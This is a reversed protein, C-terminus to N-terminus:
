EGRLAAHLPELADGYRAAIGISASHIPARVQAASATHVPRQTSFFELCKPDFDLGCIELLRRTESEQDTVLAEYSIDHVFGPLVEHWHAILHQYQRHYHGIEALDYAYNLQGSAFYNRFISASTDAADRVCHIIRANPLALRIMGILLFNGPMKDTIFRAESSYLRLRTVYDTGLKTLGANGLKSLLTAYGMATDGGTAASVLDRLLPLEGAGFVQPHSALIQEVLTTGSRPMGLVFIPTPDPNGAGAHTAFTEATFSQRIEAFAQESQLPSYDVAARRLKNAELLYPMARQYDGDEEYARGLDFALHMRASSGPEAMRFSAIREEIGTAPDGILGLMRRWEARDPDIRLADRYAELAADRRGYAMLTSGLDAYYQPNRPNIAIAQRHAVIADEIDGVADLARGLVQFADASSPRQAIAKRVASVAERPRGLELLIGARNLNAEPFNPRLGLAKRYTEEALERRGSNRYVNALNLWAEPFASKLAVAEKLHTEAEALRGFGLMVYGLDCRAAANRPESAVSASLHRLADEYQGRRLAVIGSMHLGMAHDPARALLDRLVMDAMPLNGAKLHSAATTFLHQLAEPAEAAGAQRDGTM